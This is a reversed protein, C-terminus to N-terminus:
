SVYEGYVSRAAAKMTYFAESLKGGDLRDMEYNALWHLLKGFEDIEDIVHQDLGSTNEIEDLRLAFSLLMESMPAKNAVARDHLVYWGLRGSGGAPDYGAKLAAKTAKYITNM